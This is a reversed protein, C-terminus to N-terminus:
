KKGSDEEQAAKVQQAEKQAATLVSSVVNDSNIYASLSKVTKGWFGDSDELKTYLGTSGLFLFVGLWVSDLLSITANAFTLKFGISFGLSIILCIISLIWTHGAIWKFASFWKKAAETIYMVIVGLIAGLLFLQVFLGLETLYKFNIEM